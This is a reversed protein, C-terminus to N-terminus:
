EKGETRPPLPAFYGIVLLLLGVGMFSVIRAVTGIDALDVTFLKVIVLGLLIAGAIWLERM